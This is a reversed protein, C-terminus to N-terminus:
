SYLTPLSFQCRRGLIGISIPNLAEFGLRTTEVGSDAWPNFGFGLLYAAICSLIVFEGLILVVTAFLVDDFRDIDSCIVAICPPLVAGFYFCAADQAGIIDAFLWDYLLRISYIFWFVALLHPIPRSKGGLLASLLAFGSLVAVILRYPVTIVRTDSLGLFAVFIGATPYGVLVAIRVAFASWEGLSLKASEGRRLTRSGSGDVVNTGKNTSLHSNM